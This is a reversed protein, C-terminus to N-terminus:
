YGGGQNADATGLAPGEVAVLSGGLEGRGGAHVDGCVHSGDKREGHHPEALRCRSTVPTWVVVQSGDFAPCRPLPRTRGYGLAQPGLRQRLARTRMHAEPSSRTSLSPAPRPQRALM